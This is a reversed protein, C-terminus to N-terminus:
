LTRNLCGESFLGLFGGRRDARQKPSVTYTPNPLPQGFAAEVKQEFMTMADEAEEHRGSAAYWRPSEPLQRRAYMALLAVLFMMGFMVRWGLAGGVFMVITFSLLNFLVAGSQSAVHMWGSLSARR